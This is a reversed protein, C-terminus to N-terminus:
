AAATSRRRAYRVFLWGALLFFPAWFGLYGWFFPSYAGPRDGVYPGIAQPPGELAIALAPGFGQGAAWWSFAALLLMHFRHEVVNAAAEAAARRRWRVSLIVGAMFTWIMWLAGTWSNYRAHILATLGLGLGILGWPVWRDVATSPSTRRRSFVRRRTGQRLMFLVCLAAYIFGIRAPYTSPSALGEYQAHNDAVHTSLRIANLAIGTLAAVAMTWVFVRGARVHIRRGKKALMAAIGSITGAGGTLAHVWVLVLFLLNALESGYVIAKLHLPTADM